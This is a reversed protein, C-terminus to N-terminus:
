KVRQEHGFTRVYNVLDGPIRTKGFTGEMADTNGPIKMKFGPMESHGSYIKYLLAGDTQKQFSNLTFDTPTHNLRLARKGLGKGDTGHCSLCFYNYLEKGSAISAEDAHVPNKLTEYKAPVKWPDEQRVIKFSLVTALFAVMGLMLLMRKM